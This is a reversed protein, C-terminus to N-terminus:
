NNGKSKPKKYKEKIIRKYSGGLNVKSNKASKEQFAGGSKTKKRVGKLYDIEIKQPLEEDLLLKSIKVEKPFESIPIAMNMLKEIATQFGKEEATVFTISQGMKDARGTRGIRHMYDEPETPIDFNFVHSINAIDLGRAIIDTAVLIRFEGADFSNVTNIRYNQSKNAHMVSVQIGFIPSLLDFVMDAMRKSKVFVLVKNFESEAKLIHSLLNIKTNFNPVQYGIQNIQLLPTGSAAIERKEPQNFFHNILVEIEPSITASFLLHQRKIPLLDMITTLQARFGLTLMEDMEDIVVKQIAKLRLVGNLALDLLRGPTAVLIDVGNFVLKKQTNINTGGYIAAKRVTKYTTLKDIEEIVQLVLERTPVLILVRPQQQESYSLQSLIPLLYAFTKGTGTQAIGVVDRGSMVVPYIKAQIPTANDFGLNNLANLLQKSINLENFNM